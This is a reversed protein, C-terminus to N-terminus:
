MKVKKGYGGISYGTIKGSKIGEWIEDDNIKSSLLWAGKTIISTGSAYTVPAQFSEVVQAKSPSIKDSHQLKYTQYHLMWDVMMKRITSEKMYDGHSDVEDPLYVIGTVIREEEDVKSFSLVTLNGEELEKSFDKKEITDPNIKGDLGVNSYYKQGLLETMANQATQATWGYRKYFIMGVFRAMKESYLYYAGRLDAISIWQCHETIKQTRQGEVYLVITYDDEYDLWEVLPASPQEVKKVEEKRKEIREKVVSDIKSKWHALKREDMETLVTEAKDFFDPIFMQKFRNRLSYLVEDSALEVEEKTIEEVRLDKKINSQIWKKAKERDWTKRDFLYSQAVMSDGGSKLKGMIISINDGVSKTRFSGERFLSPDKVRFRIKGTTVELGPM